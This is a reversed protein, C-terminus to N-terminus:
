NILFILLLLMYIEIFTVFHYETSVEIIGRILINDSTMLMLMPSLDAELVGFHCILYLFVCGAWNLLLQKYPLM